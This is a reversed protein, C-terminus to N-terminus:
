GVAGLLSRGLGLGGASAPPHSPPRLDGRIDLWLDGIVTGDLVAAFYRTRRELSLISGAVDEEARPRTFPEPGAVFQGMEADSAYGFYGEVDGFEFPRLKLRDTTLLIGEFGYLM